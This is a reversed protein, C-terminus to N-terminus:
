SGWADRDVAPAPESVGIGMAIVVDRDCCADVKAVSEGRRPQTAIGVERLALAEVTVVPDRDLAHEGIVALAELAGPFGAAGFVRDFGLAGPWVPRLCVPFDFAEDAGQELDPGIRVGLRM